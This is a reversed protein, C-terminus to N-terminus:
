YMLATQTPAERRWITSRLGLSRGMQALEGKTAALLCTVAPATLWRRAAQLLAPGEAPLALRAAPALGAVPVGGFSAVHAVVQGGSARVHTITEWGLCPAKGM